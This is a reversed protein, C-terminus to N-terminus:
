YLKVNRVTVSTEKYVTTGHIHIHSKANFFHLQIPGLQVNAFLRCLVSTFTFCSFYFYIRYIENILSICLNSKFLKADISSLMKIGKSWRDYRGTLTKLVSVTLSLREKKSAVIVFLKYEVYLVNM